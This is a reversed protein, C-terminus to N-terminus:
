LADDGKDDDQRHGNEHEVDSPAVVEEIRAMYSSTTDAMMGQKVFIQCLAAMKDLWLITRLMQNLAKYHSSCRWPEKVDKIHKSKTISSCLGNPSGFLQISLYYHFLAYQCPLSILAHVSSVVFIDSLRHFWDVCDHFHKLASLSIANQHADTFTAIAQVM